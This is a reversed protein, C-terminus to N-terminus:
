GGFCDPASDDRRFVTTNFGMESPWYPTVSSPPTSFKVMGQMLVTSFGLMTDLVNLFMASALKVFM